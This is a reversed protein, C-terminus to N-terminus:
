PSAARRPITGHGLPLVHVAVARGMTLPIHDVHLAGGAVYASECAWSAFSRIRSRLGCPVQAADRCLLGVGRGDVADYVAHPGAHVVPVPADPARHLQDRVRPPASVPISM